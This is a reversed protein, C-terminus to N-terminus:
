GFLFDWLFYCVIVVVVFVLLVVGRNFVVSTSALDEGSCFARRVEGV